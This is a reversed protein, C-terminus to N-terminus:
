MITNWGIKMRGDPRFEMVYPIPRHADFNQEPRKDWRIIPAKEKITLEIENEFDEEDDFVM